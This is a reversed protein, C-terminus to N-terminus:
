ALGKERILEGMAGADAVSGGPSHILIPLRRGKLNAIAGAFTKASGPTIQGEASLWEPCNPKCAPDASVVRVFRMPHVGRPRAPPRLDAYSPLAILSLLAAALAQAARPLRRMRQPPRSEAM